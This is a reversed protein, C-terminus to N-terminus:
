NISDYIENLKNTLQFGKLVPRKKWRTNCLHIAYCENLLEQNEVISSIPNKKLKNIDEYDIISILNYSAVSLNHKIVLSRFLRLLSYHYYKDMVLSKEYLEKAFYSKKELKILCNVPNNNSTTNNESSIFVSVSDLKLINKSAIIDLDVWIGGDEYLKKYRWLDSFTAFTLKNKNNNFERVQFIDKEPLVQNADCEITGEPVNKLKKYSYLEYEIGLKLFSNISFIELETLEGIWLSFVKM